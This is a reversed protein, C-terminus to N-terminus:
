RCGRRITKAIVREPYKLFVNFVAIRSLIGNKILEFSSLDFIKQGLMGTITVVDPEIKQYQELLVLEIDRM